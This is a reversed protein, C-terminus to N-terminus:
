LGRQLRLALTNTMIPLKILGEGSQGARHRIGCAPCGAARSLRDAITEPESVDIIGAANGPLSSISWGSPALGSWDNIWYAASALNLSLVVGQIVEPFGEAQSAAGDSCSDLDTVTM